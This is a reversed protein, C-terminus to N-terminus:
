KNIKTCSYYVAESEVDVQILSPQKGNTIGSSVFIDFGDAACNAGGMSAMGAYGEALPHTNEKGSGECTGLYSSEIHFSYQFNANIGFSDEVSLKFYEGAVLAAKSPNEAITCVYSAPRAFSSFAFFLSMVLIIKKM